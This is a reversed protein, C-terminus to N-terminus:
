FTLVQPVPFKCIDPVVGIRKSFSEIENKESFNISISNRNIQSLM